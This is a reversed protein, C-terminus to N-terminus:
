EGTDGLSGVIGSFRFTDFGVEAAGGDTCGFEDFGDTEVFSKAIEVRLVKSRGFQVIEQVVMEIQREFESRELVVAAFLM